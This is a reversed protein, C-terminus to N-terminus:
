IFFYKIKRIMNWIFNMIVYVVLYKFGDLEMEKERVELFLYLNIFLM